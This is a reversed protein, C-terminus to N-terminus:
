RRVYVLTESNDYRQVIEQANKETTETNQEPADADMINNSLYAEIYQRVESGMYEEAVGMVAFISM